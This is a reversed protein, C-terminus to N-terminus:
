LTQNTKQYKAHCIHRYVNSVYSIVRRDVSLFHSCYEEQGQEQEKSWDFHGSHDTHDHQDPHDPYDHPYVTCFDSYCIPRKTHPRIQDPRTYNLWSSQSFRKRLYSNSFLSLDTRDPTCIYGPHIPKRIKLTQNTRQYNTHCIHRCVNCFYSIVHRDM